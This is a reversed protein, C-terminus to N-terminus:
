QTNNRELAILGSSPRGSALERRFWVAISYQAWEVSRYAKAQRSNLKSVRSELAVSDSGLTVVLQLMDSM